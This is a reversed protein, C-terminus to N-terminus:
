PRATLGTQSSHVQKIFYMAVSVLGITGLCFAAGFIRYIIALKFQM